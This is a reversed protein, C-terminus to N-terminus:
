GTVLANNNRINNFQEITDAKRSRRNLEFNVNEFEFKVTIGDNQRITMEAWHLLGDLTIGDPPEVTMEKIKM